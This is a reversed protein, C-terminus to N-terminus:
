IACVSCGDKTTTDGDVDHLRKLDWSDVLKELQDNLVMHVMEDENYLFHTKDQAKKYQKKIYRVIIDKANEKVYDLPKDKVWTYLRGDSHETEYKKAKDFWEPYLISMVAWECRRMFFCFYCGSRTRWKYYSPLGVSEDLINYIDNLTLGDERFPFVATINSNKSKSIYGEREARIGVYSICHDNGIWKEMPVIKLTRTCYRANPSPLYGNFSNLIDDFPVSTDKKNVVKFKDQDTTAKIYLIEKGLYEELMDLFAYVEPLETGTDTFYCECKEFIDPRTKKMYIALATSDKGGSLGIIHRVSEKAGLILQEGIRGRM